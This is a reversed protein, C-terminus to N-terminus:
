HTPLKYIKMPQSNNAPWLVGYGRQSWWAEALPCIYHDWQVLRRRVEAQQEPRMVEYVDKSDLRNKSIWEVKLGKIYTEYETSLAAAVAQEPTITTM